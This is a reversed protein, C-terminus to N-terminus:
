KLFIRRIREKFKEKHSKARLAALLELKRKNVEPDSNRSAHKSSIAWYFVSVGILFLFFLEVGIQAKGFLYGGAFKDLALFLFLCFIFILRKKFSTMTSDIPIDEALAFLQGYM